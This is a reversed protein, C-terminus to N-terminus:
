AAQGDHVCQGRRSRPPNVHHLRAACPRAVEGAQQRHLQGGIGALPPDFARHELGVTEPQNRHIPDIDFRREGPRQQNDSIVIARTDDTFNSCDEAAM